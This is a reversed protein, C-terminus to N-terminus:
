YFVKGDCREYVVVPVDVIYGGLAPSYVNPM